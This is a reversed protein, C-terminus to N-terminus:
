SKKSHKNQNYFLDSVAVPVALGLLCGLLSRSHNTNEWLGTLNGTYDVIQLIAAFLLLLVPWRRGPTYKMIAPLIIWGALLGTFIGFCRTNVAMMASGLHYTRDPLRHCIGYFMSTTWHQGSGTTGWLVEGLSVLMLFVLGAMVFWYLSRYQM